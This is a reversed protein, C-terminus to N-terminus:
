GSALNRAHAGFGVLAQQPSPALPRRGDGLEGDIVATEVVDLGVGRGSVSSPSELTTFGPRFILRLSREFDLDAECDPIGLRM